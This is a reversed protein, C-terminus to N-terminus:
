RLSDGLVGSAILLMLLVFLVVSLLLLLLSSLWKLSWLSVSLLSVAITDNASVIVASSFGIVVSLLVLLCM